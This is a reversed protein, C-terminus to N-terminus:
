EKILLELEEKTYVKGSKGTNYTSAESLEKEKEEADQKEETLQIIETVAQEQSAADDRTVESDEAECVSDDASEGDRITEDAVPEKVPISNLVEIQQRIKMLEDMQKKHRNNIFLMLVLLAILILVAQVVIIQM